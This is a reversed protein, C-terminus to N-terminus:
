NIKKKNKKLKKKLSLNRLNSPHTSKSTASESEPKYDGNSRRTLRSEKNYPGFIEQQKQKM